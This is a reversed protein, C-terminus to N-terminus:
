RSQAAALQAAAVESVRCGTNPHTACVATIVAMNVVEEPTPTIQLVNVPYPMGALIPGIAEADALQSLLKYAANGADLNPFILLNPNETLPSFPFNNHRKVWYVATDAQMEGDAVIDPRAARFMEAARRVKETQPHRVSGFDSFSIFAVRPTIFLSEMLNAAACAIQALQEATPDIHLTTDALFLARNKFVLCYVGAIRHSREAPPLISLLPGIVEQYHQTAGTVMGDAIGQRVMMMGYLNRNRRLRREAGARTLGRRQNLAYILDAFAHREPASRPDIITVDTLEYGHDRIQEQIQEENGLLVPTCIREELLIQCARLIAPDEGEPFVLRTGESEQAHRILSRRLERAPGLIRELRDRYADMDPIERRAAGTEMAARAVAPAVKLLVRSDFPTPIIYDPGFAFERGPYARLVEGTVEEKALAALAHVAAHKMEENITTARVDLAGRFIYPFGLVNNVQNPHDSRGTAVIAEPSCRKIDAYPMEPDPNALAFIIPRPAMSRVAEESLINAVSVGVFADAGVLAEALTTFPLDRAFHAKYPNLSELRAHTLPGKSDCVVMNELRVGLSLFLNATATAAAGAGSFVVTVDAISRGTLELANLFAASAIIATGHQDDHFVPISLEERLREEIYFCDPAKIDELNIGGFTPELAKVAQVIAEPESLNLEIDFVDIDAFRKFLVAKGEMVPKGALAGINGLGLVATGNSVVAVLNARATYNFSQDPDKEIELCPVAVGPTYALSLDRQTSCPKTPRVEIKGHRGDRHYALADEDSRAPREPSHSSLPANPTPEAMTLRWLPDGGVQPAVM